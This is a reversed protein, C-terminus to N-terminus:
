DYYCIVTVAACFTWFRIEACKVLTPAEEKGVNRSEDGGRSNVRRNGTKKVHMYIPIIVYFWHDRKVFRSSVSNDNQWCLRRQNTPELLLFWDQENAALHNTRSFAALTFTCNLDCHVHVYKHVSYHSLDISIFFVCHRLFFYTITAFEIKRKLM